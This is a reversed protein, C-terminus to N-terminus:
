TLKVLKRYGIAINCELSGMVDCFATSYKHARSYHESYSTYRRLENKVGLYAMLM